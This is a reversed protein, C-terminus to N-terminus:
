QKKQIGTNIEDPTIKKSKTKRCKCHIGCYDGCTSNKNCNEHKCLHNPKHRNQKEKLTVGNDNLLRNLYHQHTIVPMGYSEKIQNLSIDPHGFLVKAPKNSDNELTFSVHEGDDVSHFHKKPHMCEEYELLCLNAIDVLLEKNGYVIYEILRKQISNTKNYVPKGISHMKGYRLAGIILRNRMLTEFEDSWETKRLSDLDNSENVEPLNCKWRWLNNLFPRLQSM